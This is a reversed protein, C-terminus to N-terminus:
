EHLTYTHIQSTFAYNEHDVETATTTFLVELNGDTVQARGRVDKILCASYIRNYGNKGAQIDATRTKGIDVGFREWGAVDHTKYLVDDMNANLAQVSTTEYPKYDNAQTWVDRVAWLKGTAADYAYDARTLISTTATDEVGVNSVLLGLYGATSANELDVTLDMEVFKAHHVGIASHYTYFLLVKDANEGINVFSPEVAGFTRTTSDFWDRSHTIYPADARVWGGTLSDSFALGIQADYRDERNATAAYAMMYAYPTGKYTVDAKVVSAQYIQGGNWGEGKELVTTFDGYVYKGEVKEGVRVAITTSLADDKVSNRTYFLYRKGDEEVVCPNENFYGLSEDFVANIGFSPKAVFPEKSPGAPTGNCNCGAATAVILAACVAFWISRKKM